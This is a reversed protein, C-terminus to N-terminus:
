RDLTRRIRAEVEDWRVVRVEGDRVEAARRGVEAQWARSLGRSAGALSEELAEILARREEAPLALAEDLLRQALATM